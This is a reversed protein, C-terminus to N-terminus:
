VQCTSLLYKNFSHIIITKSTSKLLSKMNITLADICLMKYYNTTHPSWTKWVGLALINPYIEMKGFCFLLCLKLLHYDAYNVWFVFIATSLIVCMYFVGFSWHYCKVVFESQFHLSNNKLNQSTPKKVNFFMTLLTKPSTSFFSSSTSPNLMDSLVELALIHWLYFDKRLILM